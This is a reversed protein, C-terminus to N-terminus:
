KHNPPPADGRSPPMGSFGGGGLFIETKLFLQKRIGGSLFDGGRLFDVRRFKKTKFDLITAQPACKLGFYLM